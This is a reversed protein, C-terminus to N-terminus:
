PNLVKQEKYIINKPFAMPTKKKSSFNGVLPLGLAM